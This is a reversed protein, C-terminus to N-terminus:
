FWCLQRWFLILSLFRLCSSFSSPYTMTSKSSADISSSLWCSNSCERQTERERWGRRDKKQNRQKVSCALWYGKHLNPFASRRHRSVSEEVVTHFQHVGFFSPMFVILCLEFLFLNPCKSSFHMDIFGRHFCFAKFSPNVFSGGIPIWQQCVVYAKTKKV